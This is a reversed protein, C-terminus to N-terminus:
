RLAAAGAAVVERHRDRVFEAIEAGFRELGSPLEPDPMAPHVDQWAIPARGEAPCRPLLHALVQLGFVFKVVRRDDDDSITRDIYEFVLRADGQWGRLLEDVTLRGWGAELGDPRLWRLYLTEPVHVAPGATVMRMLLLQGPAFGDAGGAPLRYDPGVRDTRVLSRLLAGRDRVGWLTLIRKAIPGDYNRGPKAADGGFVGVDCHASAADPAAILTDRLRECYQPLLVDDHFYVFFFPTDVRELLANVNGRWGLRSSQEVVDIRPDRAAFRRCIGATDDTSRDVSVLIRLQGYTQGQAFRLTRDIFPAAQYAPICITLDAPHPFRSVM